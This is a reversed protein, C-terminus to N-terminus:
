AVGSDRPVFWMPMFAGHLIKIQERAWEKDTETSHELFLIQHLRELEKDLIDLGLQTNKDM